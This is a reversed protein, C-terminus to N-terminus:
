ELDRNYHIIARHFDATFEKNVYLLTPICLWLDVSVMLCWHNQTNSFAVPAWLSKQYFITWGTLCQHWKVPRCKVLKYKLRFLWGTNFSENMQLDKYNETSFNQKDCFWKNLNVVNLCNRRILPVKLNKGRFNSPFSKEKCIKLLCFLM